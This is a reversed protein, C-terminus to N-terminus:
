KISGGHRFDNTEPDLRGDGVAFGSPIPPPRLGGVKELPKQTLLPGNLGGFIPSLTALFARMTRARRFPISKMNNLAAVPM